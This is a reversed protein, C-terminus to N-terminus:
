NAVVLQAVSVLYLATKIPLSEVAGMVKEYRQLQEKYTVLERTVLDELSQGAEPESSKYDVIWRV